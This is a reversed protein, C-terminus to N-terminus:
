LSCRSILRLNLCKKGWESVLVALLFHVNRAGPNITATKMAMRIPDIAIGHRLHVTQVAQECSEPNLM